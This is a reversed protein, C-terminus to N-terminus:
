AEGTFPKVNFCDVSVRRSNYTGCSGVPQRDFEVAYSHDTNISQWQRPDVVTAPEFRDRYHIRALVREGIQFPKGEYTPSGLFM